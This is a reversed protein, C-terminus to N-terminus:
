SRHGLGLLAEAADTAAIHEDNRAPSVTKHRKWLQLLPIDDFCKQLSGNEKEKENSGNQGETLSGGVTQRQNRSCLGQKNTVDALVNKETLNAAAAGSAPKGNGKINRVPAKLPVADWLVRHTSRKEQLTQEILAVGRTPCDEKEFIRRIRSYIVRDSTRLTMRLPRQDDSENDPDVRNRNNLRKEIMSFFQFEM